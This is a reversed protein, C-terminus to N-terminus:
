TLRLAYLGAPVGDELQDLYESLGYGVRGDWRYETLGEGIRTTESGRRHRLPILTRVSGAIELEREATRARCRLAAHDHHEGSWETEIRADVIPELSGGSLLMGGRRVEGDRTAIVSVMFGDREGANCTLWRYWLPAQWSRPGWSHDRLGFGDLQWEREGVALRGRAGVHQEYHARAFGSLAGLEGDGPEPEGGFAPALARYDLELACPVQTASAFAARPDRMALPDSLLALPGDYAVRLAAMPELVEFRLGGADFGDNGDIAPRGFMFGVTGDPLYVSVTMEAHGASRLSASGRRRQAAKHQENPRNGLRVFGGIEAAPDYFNFYMSENFSPDTGPPHTRDDSPALRM